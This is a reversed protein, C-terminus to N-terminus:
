KRVKIVNNNSTIGIYLGNPVAEFEVPEGLLNYYEKCCKDLEDSVFIDIWDYLKFIGDFDYQVLRYYNHGQSPYLDIFGYQKIENSNGNGEVRGIEEVNDTMREIIFHSNNSESSTTWNLFVQKNEYFAEFLVLSVPMPVANNTYYPCFSTFGICGPGGGTASGTFCWTYSNGPILSTFSLGNGILVCSSNYLNFSNFSTNICGSQQYGANLTVSNSTPTFTWCITPNTGYFSLRCYGNTLLWNYNPPPSAIVTASGNPSACTGARESIYEVNDLRHNYNQPRISLVTLWGLLIIIFTIKILKKLQKKEKRKM